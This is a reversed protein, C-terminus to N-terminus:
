SFDGEMVRLAQAHLERRRGLCLCALCGEHLRSHICTRRRPVLKGIENVKRVTQEPHEYLYLNPETLCGDMFEIASRAQDLADELLVIRAEDRTM